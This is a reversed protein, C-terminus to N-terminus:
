DYAHYEPHEMMEKKTIKKKNKKDETKDPMKREVVNEAKRKDFFLITMYTYFWVTIYKELPMGMIEIFGFALPPLSVFCIAYILWENPIEMPRFIFNYLGLDVALTFAVAILQRLSFPGIIKTKYSRIDKPVNVQIM